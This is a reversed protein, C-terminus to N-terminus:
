FPYHLVLMADKITLLGLRTMRNFQLNLRKSDWKLLKSTKLIEMQLSNACGERKASAMTYFGVYKPLIHNVTVLTTCKVHRKSNIVYNGGILNLWSKEM